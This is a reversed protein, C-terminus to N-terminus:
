KAEEEGCLNPIVGRPWGHLMKVMFYGRAYVIRRSMRLALFAFFIGIFFAVVFM